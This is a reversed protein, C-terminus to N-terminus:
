LAPYPNTINSCVIAVNAVALSSVIANSITVNNGVISTSFNTIPNDNISLSSCAPRSLTLDYQSPFMIIINSSAPVPQTAYPTPNLNTDLNRFADFSYTAKTNITLIDASISPYLFEFTNVLVIYPILLIVERM